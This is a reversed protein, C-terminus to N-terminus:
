IINCSDRKIKEMYITPYAFSFKYNLPEYHSKLLNYLDETRYKNGIIKEINYLTIKIESINTDKILSNVYGIIEKTQNDDM